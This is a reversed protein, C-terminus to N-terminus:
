VFPSYTWFDIVQLGYNVEIVTNAEPYCSDMYYPIYGGGEHQYTWAYGLYLYHYGQPGTELLFYYPNNTATIDVYEYFFSFPIDNFTGPAAAYGEVSVLFCNYVGPDSTPITNFVNNLSSNHVTSYVSDGVNGCLEWTNMEVGNVFFKIRYQTYPDYAFATASLAFLLTLVILLATLKKATKM